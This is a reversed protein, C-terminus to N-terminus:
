FAFFDSFKGKGTDGWQNCVVALVQVGDLLKNVSM